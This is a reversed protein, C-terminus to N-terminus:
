YDGNTYEQNEKMGKWEKTDHGNDNDQEKKRSQEAFPTDKVGEWGVTPIQFGRMEKNHHTNAKNLRILM